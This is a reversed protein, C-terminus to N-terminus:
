STAVRKSAMLGVLHEELGTYTTHHDDVRMIGLSSNISYYIPPM